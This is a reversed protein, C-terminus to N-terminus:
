WETADWSANPVLVADLRLARSDEYEWLEGTGDVDIAGFIDHLVGTEHDGGLFLGYADDGNGILIGSVQDPAKGYLAEFGSGGIVFTAGASVIGSLQLDGWSTGGNSQRSLYCTTTNFDIVEGGANYLEIFRGAYDDAPDTVESIFLSDQAQAACTLFLVAAMFQITFIRKM